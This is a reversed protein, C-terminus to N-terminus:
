AVSFLRQGPTSSVSDGNGFYLRVEYDAAAPVDFAYEIASDGVGDWRESDFIAGPVSSDVTPGPEVADFRASNNSGPDVLYISSNTLNDRSWDPGGDNAAITPGGANVRFLVDGAPSPTAPMADDDPEEPSLGAFPHASVVDWVADQVAAILPADAVDDFGYVSGTLGRPDEQYLTAYFTLAVVYTGITPDETFPSENLHIGDAYFQEVGQTSDLQPILGARIRNDLEYFVDGVPILNVPNTLDPNNDNVAEVLQEYYDRNEWVEGGESSRDWLGTYDLPLFEGPNNPDEERTIWYSYIYFNTDQADPNTLTLDVFEQVDSITGTGSDSDNLNQRFPLLVVGDWEYETLANDFDGFDDSEFHNITQANRELHGELTQGGTLHSGYILNSDRTEVLSDLQPLTIGRVLSNGVSYVQLEQM